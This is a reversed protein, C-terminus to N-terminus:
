FVEKTDTIFGDTFETRIIHGHLKPKSKRIIQKYVLADKRRDYCLNYQEDEDVKVHFETGEPLIEEKEKFFAKVIKLM